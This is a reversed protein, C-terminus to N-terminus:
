QKYYYKTIKRGDEGVADKEEIQNANKLKSIYTSMNSYQVRSADAVEQMTMGEPHVTKLADRVKMPNSALKKTATKTKVPKPEKPEAIAKTKAPLQTFKEILKPFQQELSIPVEVVRNGAKYTIIDGEVSAVKFNEKFDDIAPFTIIKTTEPNGTDAIFIPKDATSTISLTWEASKYKKLESEARMLKIKIDSFQRELSESKSESDSSKLRLKSVEENASDVKSKYSDASNKLHDCIVRLRESEIRYKELSTRYNVKETSFKKEYDKRISEVETEKKELGEVIAKQVKIFNLSKEYEMFQIKLILPYAMLQHYSRSAQRVFDDNYSAIKDFSSTIWFVKNQIFRDISEFDPLPQNPVEPLRQNHKDALLEFIADSSIQIKKGSKYSFSLINNSFSPEPPTKFFIYDSYFEQFSQPFTPTNYTPSSKPLQQDKLKSLFLASKTDIEDYIDM